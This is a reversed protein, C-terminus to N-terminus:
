LDVPGAGPGPQIVLMRSTRGPQDYSRRLAAQVADCADQRALVVISGGFGGGTMRAGLVGAVGGAIEVLCDLEPCSGQYLDRLSRHSDHMLNGFELLDGRRLADAAALTRRNEATVHLARDAVLPPLAGVAARVQAEDVDRLARVLADRQQFYEVAEACQRQRVAYESAALEHRVGSDVVLLVHHGLELPVHEYTLERCDLLLAHRTRCLLSAYQDMIGCPVGAYAHEARRCVRLIVGAPLEVGVLRALALATAVSLAASSSLGAGVPVDSAVYADFGGSAAGHEALLEAVGAIYSTWHTQPSHQWAGVPWEHAQDLTASYVRVQAADPRPAVAVWTGFQTAIPLVFGDNYDTHEGILNVRGPARAVAQCPRGYRDAFAARLEELRM